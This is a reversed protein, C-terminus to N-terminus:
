LSLFTGGGHHPSKMGKNKIQNNPGISGAHKIMEKNHPNSSAPKM